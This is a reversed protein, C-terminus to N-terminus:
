RSPELHADSREVVEATGELARKDSLTLLESQEDQEDALEFGLRKTMVLDFETRDKPPVFMTSVPSINLGLVETLAVCRISPKCIALTSAEYIVVYHERGYHAELEEILVALGDPNSTRDTRYGFEAIVSIQWLILPVTTDFRRPHVLFETAEFSQCGSTGPDIGLDAFLCDEASVGPLMRAEYGEEEAIRIAQHSPFVFVGPHGYFAACVKLGDRVSAMIHQSMELYTQLRKKDPSYFKYLSEASPNLKSVWVATAPDAVLYFLKDAIEMQARAELTTQGIQLGTGVVLLSGKAMAM